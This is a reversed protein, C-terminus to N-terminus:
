FGCSAETETPEDPKTIAICESCNGPQGKMTYRLYGGPQSPDESTCNRYRYECEMKGETGDSLKCPYSGFESGSGTEIAPQKDCFPAQALQSLPVISDINYIAGRSLLATDLPLTILGNFTSQDVLEVFLASSYNFGDPCIAMGQSFTHVYNSDDLIYYSGGLTSLAETPIILDPFSLNVNELNAISEAEISLFSAESQETCSYFSSLLVLGVILHNKITTM